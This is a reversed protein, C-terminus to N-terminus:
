NLSTVQAVYPLNRYFGQYDLGYGVVFEKGIEFGVFDLKLDTELAEPKLLLACTLIKKPARAALIKKLYAMTLGSDVIDEVIMVTKGRIANTLDLTLKIEGSSKTEMGYSACGLFECTVDSEIARILDSFFMFSGKLVCILALPERSALKDIEAGIEQVRAAIKKEDILTQLKLPAM